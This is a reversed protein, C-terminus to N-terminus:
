LALAGPVTTDRAFSYYAALQEADEVRVVGLSAAMARPKLVVPYGIEAAVSLAEVVSSVMVSEPQPVGAQALATRTLHKDRCRLVM